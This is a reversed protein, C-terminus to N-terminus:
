IAVVENDKYFAEIGDADTIKLTLSLTDSPTINSATIGISYIDDTVGIIDVTTWPLIETSDRGSLKDLKYELTTVVFQQGPDIIYYDLTTSIGAELFATPSVRQVTIQKSNFFM